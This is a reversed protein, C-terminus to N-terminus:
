ANKAPEAVNDAGDVADAAAVDAAAAAVDAATYSPAAAPFPACAARDGQQDAGECNAPAAVAALNKGSDDAFSSVAVPAAVVVASASAAWM